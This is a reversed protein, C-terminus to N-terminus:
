PNASVVPSASVQPNATADNIERQAWKAAWSALNFEWRTISLQFKVSTLVPMASGDGLQTPTIALLQAPLPTLNTQGNALEMKMLDLFMQADTTEQGAPAAAIATALTAELTTLKSETSLLKQAGLIEEVWLQVTRFTSGESKFTQYDAQLGALTTEADVKTKLTQLGSILGNLEADVTAQGSTGLGSGDVQKMWSQLSKIRGSIQSDLTKQLPVQDCYFKNFSDHIRGQFALIRQDWIGLGHAEDKGKGFPSVWLSTLNATVATPTPTVVPTCTIPPKTPKPTKSAEPSKSAEPDHSKLGHGPDFTPWVWGSPLVKPPFGPHGPGGGGHIPGHADVGSLGALALLSAALVAAVVKTSIRSM